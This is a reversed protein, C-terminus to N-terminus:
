KTCSPHVEKSLAGWEATSLTHVGMHVVKYTACYWPLSANHLGARIFMPVVTGVSKALSHVALILAPISRWMRFVCRIEWCLPHSELEVDVVM